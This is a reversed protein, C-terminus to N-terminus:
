LSKKIKELKEELLKEVREEIIRNTTQGLIKETLLNIKNNLHNKLEEEIFKMKMNILEELDKQRKKSAKTSFLHLEELLLNKIVAHVEETTFVNISDDISDKIKIYDRRNLNFEEINPLKAM